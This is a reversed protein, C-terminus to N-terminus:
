LASSWWSLMGHQGHATSACCCVDCTGASNVYSILVCARASRHRHCVESRHWDLETHWSAAASKHQAEVQAADRQAAALERKHNAAASDRALVLSEVQHPLGRESETGPLRQGSCSSSPEELFLSAHASPSM